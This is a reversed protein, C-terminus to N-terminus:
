VQIRIPNNIFDSIDDSEIDDRSKLGIAMCAAQALDIKMRSKEKSLKRAGSPDPDPIANSVCYTLVPHGNHKLTGKALAREFAELAPGMDKYGQGWEVFRIGLGTDGTYCDIGLRQMAKLLVKIRWRDFAVGLINYEADLEAIKLAVVDYDVDLGPPAELYGEEVWRRYAARDRKGHLDILDGPKWAVPYLDNRDPDGPLAVLACLDNTTALDLGIYIDEGPILGAEPDYARAWMDADIWRPRQDVRQNLRLNCFSAKFSPSQQAKKAARTLSERRCITGLGPNAKPWKTRDFPDADDPVAYLHCIVSPDYGSLGNDILESMVHQPDKSQTSITIFLFDDRAGDATDIAEYLDGSISQALEDYIAFSPNLGHKTKADRSLAQYFSGNAHCVLRKKSDICTILGGQEADLDPDARVMQAAIKYIAAAQEKDNAASYIEGNQIACPGILHCLVLAALLTTKGNKRAISLVAERVLRSGDTKMPEYVARIFRKQFPALVLPSGAGKGTPAILMEIFAIVAEALKRNRKQKRARKQKTTPKKRKPKTQNAASM